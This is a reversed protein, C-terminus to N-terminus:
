HQSATYVRSLGMHLTETWTVTECRSGMKGSTYVYICVCMCVCVYMCVYIRTTPYISFSLSFSPSPPPLLLTYACMEADATHLLNPTDPIIPYLYMLRVLCM